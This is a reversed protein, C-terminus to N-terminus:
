LREETTTRLNIDYMNPKAFTCFRSFCAQCHELEIWVYVFIYDINILMMFVIKSIWFFRKRFIFQVRNKTKDKVALVPACNM